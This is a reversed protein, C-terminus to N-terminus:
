CILNTVKGLLNQLVSHFSQVPLKQIYRMEEWHQYEADIYHYLLKMWLLLLFDLDLMM